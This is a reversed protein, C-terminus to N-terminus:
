PYTEIGVVRADAFEDRSDALLNIRAVGVAEERGFLFGALQQLNSRTIKPIKRTNGAVRCYIRVIPGIRGPLNPLDNPMAGPVLNNSLLTL